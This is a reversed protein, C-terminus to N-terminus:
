APFIDSQSKFYTKKNQLFEKSTKSAKFIEILDIIQYNISTGFKTTINNRINSSYNKNEIKKLKKKKKMYININLTNLIDIILQKIKNNM